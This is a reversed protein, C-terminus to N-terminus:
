KILLKIHINEGGLLLTNARHTFQHCYNKTTNNCMAIQLVVRELFIELIM